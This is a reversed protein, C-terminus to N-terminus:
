WYIEAIQEPTTAADLEAKRLQAHAFHAVGRSVMAKIFVTWADIDPVPAYTNDLAKWAGPWADPMERTLAIEANACQIDLMSVEDCAIQKGAFDFYSQNASLRAANIEAAKREKLEALGAVEVWEPSAGSWKLVATASPQMSLVTSDGAWEILECGPECLPLVKPAPASESSPGIFDPDADSVNIAYEIIQTSVRRVLFQSM